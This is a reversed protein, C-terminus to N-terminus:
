QLHIENTISVIMGYIGILIVSASGALVMLGSTALGLLTMLFYNLGRM